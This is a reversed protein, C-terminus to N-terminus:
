AREDKVKALANEVTYIANYYTFDLEGAVNTSKAKYFIHKKVAPGHYVIDKEKATLDKFPVDTRVGMARAVEKMLSWMLTQWPLVAGEDITLTEDPVLADVNVTKVKGTGECRPCAGQSNFSLEEASPAYFPSRLDPLYTRKRRSPLPRHSRMVTQAATCRLVPFLLRLSSLLETGTGFTSRMGPVSPRQHMALAAPVYLVEDVDAKPSFSM